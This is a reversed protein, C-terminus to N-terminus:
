IEYKLIHGQSGNMEAVKLYQGLNHWIMFVSLLLVQIHVTAQQHLNKIHM